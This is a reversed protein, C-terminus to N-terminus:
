RSIQRAIEPWNQSADRALRPDDLFRSRSQDSRFLVLRGRHIVFLYPDAEVIRRRAVGVPDLGEFLPLFSDPDARFAALNAESSFRWAAGRWVMEFEALGPLAAGTVHYAVPDYGALALGSIRSVMMTEGPHQLGPLGEPLGAVAASFPLGTSFTLAGTVFFARIGRPLACHRRAKAPM